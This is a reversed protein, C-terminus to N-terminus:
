LLQKLGKYCLFTCIIINTVCIAYIYEPYLEITIFYKKEVLQVLLYLVAIKNYVCTSIAVSIILLIVVTTLNYEFYDGLTWSIPKNLVVSNEYIVFKETYLSYIDEAYSILVIFCVVFPSMKGLEILLIRARHIM